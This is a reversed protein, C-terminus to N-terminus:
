RARPPDRTHPTALAISVCRLLYAAVPMPAYMDHPMDHEDGRQGGWPPPVFWGYVLGIRGLAVVSVPCIRRAM